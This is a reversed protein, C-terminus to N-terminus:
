RKQRRRLYGLGMMGLGLLGLTAGGDPVSTSTGNFLSVHSLAATPSISHVGSLDGVYWVFSEQQGGGAGYKALLYEYGTVDVSTVSQFKDGFEVDEPAVVRTSGVRDCDESTIFVCDTSAAGIAMTLLSEIMLEENEESSPIGDVVHGIYRSDGVTLTIASATTASATLVLASLLTILTKKM